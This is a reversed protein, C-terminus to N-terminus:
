RAKGNPTPTARSKKRCGPSPTTRVSNPPMIMGKLPGPPTLKVMRPMRKRLASQNSPMIMFCPSMWNSKTWTVRGAKSSSTTAVRASTM